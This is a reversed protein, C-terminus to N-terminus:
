QVLCWVIGMSLMDDITAHLLTTNANHTARRHICVCQSVCWMYQVAHRHLHKTAHAVHTQVIEQMFGRCFTNTDLTTGICWISVYSRVNWVTGITTM